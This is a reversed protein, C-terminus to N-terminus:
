PRPPLRQQPRSVEIVIEGEAPVTFRLGSQEYDRFRRDILAPADDPPIVRARHEGALMGRVERGDMLTVPTFSGDEAIEGSALVDPDEVPKLDVRGGALRQLEGDKFVVRGKVPHTKPGGCGPLGWLALAGLCALLWWGRVAKEHSV